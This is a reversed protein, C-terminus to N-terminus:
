ISLWTISKHGNYFADQDCFMGQVNLITKLFLFFTVMVTSRGDNM